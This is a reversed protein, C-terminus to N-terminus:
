LARVQSGKYIGMRGLSIQPRILVWWYKAVRKLLLYFNECKKSNSFYLYIPSPHWFQLSAFTSLKLSSLKTM